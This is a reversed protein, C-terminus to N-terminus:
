GRASAKGLTKKVYIIYIYIYHGMINWKSRAEKGFSLKKKDQSLTRAKERIMTAM